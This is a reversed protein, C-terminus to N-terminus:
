TSAQQVKKGKAINSCDLVKTRM